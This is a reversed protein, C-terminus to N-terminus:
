SKRDALSIMGPPAPLLARVTLNPQFGYGGNTAWPVPERM